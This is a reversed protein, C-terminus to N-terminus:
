NSSLNLSPGDYWLASRLTWSRASDPGGESRGAPGALVERVACAEFAGTQSSVRAARLRSPEFGLVFAHPLDRFLWSGSMRLQGPQHLRFARPAFTVGDDSVELALDAEGIRRTSTGCLLVLRSASRLAGLDAVLARRDPSDLRWAVPAGDEPERALDTFVAFGGLAQRRFRVGTAELAAAAADGRERPCDEVVIARGGPRFRLVEIEDWHPRELRYSNVSKNSPLALIRGRSHWAIAASPWHDAYVARVGARALGEVLATPDPRGPCEAVPTGVMIERISWTAPSTGTVEIRVYRAAVPAFRAEVRSRRIRQFPHAGSWYLPGAYRPVRAVERWTAADESVAVVFGAPLEQLGWPLWAVLGIPHARGLDLRFFSGPEQPDWPRWASDVLRDFALRAGEANHSATASWGTPDLDAYGTPSLEFDTYAVTRPGAVIRYRIGAATASQEFARARSPFTWTVRDAADVERVVEAMREQYPDSVLVRRESLFSWHNAPGYVHSFGHQELFALQQRTLASWRRQWAVTQASALVPTLVLSGLLNNLTLLGVLVWTAVRARRGLVDAAIGFLVPVALYLPLLYRPSRLLDGFQTVIPLVLTTAIVGSLLGVMGRESRRVRPVALWWRLSLLGAGLTLGGVVGYAPGRAADWIEPHVGLIKPLADAALDVVHAELRDEGVLSGPPFPSLRHGAYYAILPATGTAFSALAIAARTGLARWRSPRARAGGLALAVALPLLFSASLYNTWWALGAMLGLGVFRRPPSEAVGEQVIRWGLFLLWTGLILMVMYHGRSDLSWGFFYYPPIAILLAAVAAVRPGFLRRTTVAVSVLFVFFLPLVALKLALPTPGLGKLVIAAVYRDAVGHVSQGYFFIPFRGRLVNQSMLGEVGEDHWLTIVFLPPIRILVAILVIALLTWRWWRREPSV